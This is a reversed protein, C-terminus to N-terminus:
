HQRPPGDDRPLRQLMEARDLSITETISFSAIMRQRSNRCCGVSGIGARVLAVFKGGCDSYSRL